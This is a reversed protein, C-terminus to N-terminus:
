SLSRYNKRIRFFFGASYCFSQGEFEYINDATESNQSVSPPPTDEIDNAPEIVWKNNVTDGLVTHLDLTVEASSLLDDLGMKLVVHLDKPM